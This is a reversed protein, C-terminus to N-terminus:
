LLGTVTTLSRRMAATMAQGGQTNAEDLGLRHTPLTHCANRYVQFRRHFTSFANGSLGGALNRAVTGAPRGALTGTFTGTRLARGARGAAPGHTRGRGAHR